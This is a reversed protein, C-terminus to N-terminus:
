VSLGLRGSPVWFVQPDRDRGTLCATRSASGLDPPALLAPGRRGRETFRTLHLDCVATKKVPSFFFTDQRRTHGYLPGSSRNGGPKASRTPVPAREWTASSRLHTPARAKFRTHREGLGPCLLNGLADQRGLQLSTSQVEESYLSLRERPRLTVGPVDHTYKNIQSM